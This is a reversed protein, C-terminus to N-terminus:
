VRTWASVCASPIGNVLKCYGALEEKGLKKRLSGYVFSDGGSEKANCSRENNARKKEWSQGNDQM